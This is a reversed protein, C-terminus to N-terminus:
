CYKEISFNKVLLTTEWILIKANRTIIQFKKAGIPSKQLGIFVGPLASTKRQLIRRSLEFFFIFSIKNRKNYLALLHCKLMHFFLCIVLLIFYLGVIKMKIKNAFQQLGNQFFSFGIDLYDVLLSKHCSLQLRISFLLM